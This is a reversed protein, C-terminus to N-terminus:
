GVTHLVGVKLLRAEVAAAVEGPHGDGLGRGRPREVPLSRVQGSRELGDEETVQGGAPLHHASGVCGLVVPGAGRSGSLHPTDVVRCTVDGVVVVVAVVIAVVVVILLM